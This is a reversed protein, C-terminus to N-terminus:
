GVVWRRLVAREHRRTVRHKDRKKAKARGAKRRHPSNFFGTKELDRAQKRIEELLLRNTASM